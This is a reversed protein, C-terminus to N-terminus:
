ETELMVYMDPLMEHEEPERVSVLDVQFGVTHRPGAWLDLDGHKAFIRQLREIGQSIRM